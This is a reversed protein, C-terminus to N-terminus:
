DPARRAQSARLAHGIDAVEALTLIPDIVTDVAAALQGLAADSDTAAMPPFLAIRLAGPDRAALPGDVGLMAGQTHHQWWPQWLDQMDRAYTRAAKPDQEHLGLVLRSFCSALHEFYNVTYADAAEPLTQFALALAAARCWAQCAAERQSQLHLADGRARWLNALLEPDPDHSLTDALALGNDVRGMAEDPRGAENLYQAQYGRLYSCSWTDGLPTLAAIAQEILLLAAAKDGDGYAACEALAFQLSARVRAADEPRKRDIDADAQLASLMQQLAAQARRWDARKGRPGMGRPFADQFTQLLTLGARQVPGVSRQAWEDVLKQCFKFEQFFGWWWWADFYVRLFAVMSASADSGVALYYLWNGVDAHWQAYEYRYWLAYQDNVGQQASVDIRRAYSDLLRNQLVAKREPPLRRQAFGHVIPHLAYESPKYPDDNDRRCEIMGLDWLAELDSVVDPVQTIEAAMEATFYYPKPRFVSLALFTHRAADSELARYSLDILADLTQTAGVQTAPAPARLEMLIDPRHLEDLARELVDKSGMLSKKRLYKGILKLAQPLGGVRQVLARVRQPSLKLAEPACLGLLRLSDDENLDDLPIYPDDNGWALNEAVDNTIRTTVVFVCDPLQAMLGSVQNPQWVDDLVILMRRTGIRQQVARLWDDETALTAHQAEEIGLAWAWERLQPQLEPHKGFELWLVGAFSRLIAARDGVLAHALATKGVGPARLLCTHQGALVRAGLRALEADRGVIPLESGAAPVCYPKDHLALRQQAWLRLHKALLDALAPTDAYSNFEGTRRGQADSFRTDFFDQVRQFQQLRRAQDDAALGAPIQLPRQDRYVWVPVGAALAADIEYATGSVIERGDELVAPSGFRSSLIVMVLDCQTTSPKYADVSAQGSRGMELPVPARPDDWLVAEVRLRDRAGLAEPLAQLAMRAATREEGVDGPSSVFVRLALPRLPNM